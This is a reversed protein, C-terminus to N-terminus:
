QKVKNTLFYIQSDFSFDKPDETYFGNLYPNETFTEQFSIASTEETFIKAIESKGIGVPAVIGFYPYRPKLAEQREPM